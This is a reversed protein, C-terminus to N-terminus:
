QSSTRQHLSGGRCSPIDRTQLLSSPILLRTSSKLSGEAGNLHAWGDKRLYAEYELLGDQPVCENKLTDHMLDLFPKHAEVLDPQQVVLDYIEEQNSAPPTIFAIISASTPSSPPQSFFSIAYRKSDPLQHFYLGSPHYPDKIPASSLCASSTAFFRRSPLLNTSPLRRAPALLPARGITSSSSTLARSQIRGDRCGEISRCALRALSLSGRATTMVKVYPSFILLVGKM